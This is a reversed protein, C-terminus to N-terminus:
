SQTQLFNMVKTLIEEPSLLDTQIYLSAHNRAHSLREIQQRYEMETWNLKRRQTVIPYSADLFILINPKALRLWMDPVYSHEQAIHKALIHNKILGKVLTSKGAGCPGVVGVLLRKDVIETM